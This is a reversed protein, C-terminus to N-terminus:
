ASEATEDAQGDDAIRADAVEALKPSEVLASLAEAVEVARGSVQGQYRLSATQTSHGLRAMTEPLNAVRATQHGAFHRMDHLRMGTVGASACAERFADRVVRDSIHCGGRVPAFLQADPGTGVFETLHRAIDDRIHPPVVVNRGKGSKPTSVNCRPNGTAAAQKETLHTVGRTLAILECNVGIDKRRLEIVEGFRLGCWASILVLARFKAEIKDAIAAMEAISPVVSEHNRKTSTAGNIMAPNRDLLEDKVATDCIAHLLQYAHARMTPKDTLTRAHWDRILAPKLNSVVVNGLKPAIHKELLNTYHAITKPKLDRQEIWRKGYQELTERNVEVALGVREAPSLWQLQPGNGGVPALASIANQIARREQTLWEEADIKLEFTTPAFHRVNDPGIYSAQFRGSSRKRIWGWGRHGKRGSM